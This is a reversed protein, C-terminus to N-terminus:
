PSSAVKRMWACPIKEKKKERLRARKEADEEGKEYDGSGKKNGRGIDGRKKEQLEEKAQSCRRKPVGGSARAKSV